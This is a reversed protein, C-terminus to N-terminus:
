KDICAVLRATELIRDEPLSLRLTLQNIRDTGENTGEGCHHQGCVKM